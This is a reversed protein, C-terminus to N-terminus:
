GKFYAPLENALEPMTVLFPKLWGLAYALRTPPVPKGELLQDMLALVPAFMAKRLAASPKRWQEPPVPSVLARADALFRIPDETTRYRSRLSIEPDPLTRDVALSAAAVYLRRTDETRAEAFLQSFRGAFAIALAVQEQNSLANKKM